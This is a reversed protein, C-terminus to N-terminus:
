IVNVRNSELKIAAINWGTSPAPIRVWSRTVKVM